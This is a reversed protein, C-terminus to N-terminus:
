TWFSDSLEVASRQRDFSWFHYKPKRSLCFRFQHMPFGKGPFINIIIARDELITAPVELWGESGLRLKGGLGSRYPAVCGKLLIPRKALRHWSQIDVGEPQGVPLNMRRSPMPCNTILFDWRNKKWSRDSMNSGSTVHMKLTNANLRCSWLHCLGTSATRSLLDWDL